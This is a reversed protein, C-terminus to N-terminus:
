RRQRRRGLAALAAVGLLGAAGPEPVVYTITLAPKAGATASESSDFRQATGSAATSEDGVLVWGFNGAPNDVWGQVDAVMGATSGWTGPGLAPVRAASAAAVFDGGPADWTQASYFTHVWTADGAASPAGAGGPSGANSTGEGWDKTARHLTVEWAGSPSVRNLNLTLTAEQVVAGAPIASLDFAILGRRRLSAGSEGTRGAYLHAGAGNSWAGFPDEYLTNDKLPNVTLSAGPAGGACGMAAAAAAWLWRCRM